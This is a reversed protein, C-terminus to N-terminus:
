WWNWFYDNNSFIQTTEGTFISEFRPAAKKFAKNGKIIQELYSNYGNFSEYRGVSVRGIEIQNNKYVDYIPFNQLLEPIKPLSISTIKSSDFFLNWQYPAGIDYGGEMYIEGISHGTGTTSIQVENNTMSFNVTWDPISINDRPIGLGKSQYNGSNFTYAHSYFQTNLIYNYGFSANAGYGYSWIQHYIDNVEGTQNFFGYISLNKTETMYEAPTMIIQKDVLNDQVFDSYNIEFGSAIPREILLYSYFNTIPNFGYMYAPDQTDMMNSSTFNTILPDGAENSSFYYDRGFFSLQLDQPKGNIPYYKGGDGTYRTSTELTLTNLNELNVNTISYLYSAVGNSGLSAFTITFEQDIAFNEVAHLKVQRSDHTLQEIDILSGDLNSAIVYHSAPINYSLYDDPINLTFILRQLLISWISITKNGLSDTAIFKIEGEGLEFLDPNFDFSIETTLDFEHILEDRFYLQLTDVESFSDTVVPNLTIQEDIIMDPELADLVIEPGSNDVLFTVIYSATNGALDSVQIQLENPGDQLNSTDLNFNYKNEQAYPISQGNVLVSVSSIEDNDTASFMIANDIGQLIEGEELTVETILPMDNDIIITFEELTQNDAIDTVLISLKYDANKSSIVQKKSSFSTLDLILEYPAILDEGVKQDDIFAEVRKIGSEDKADISINVSSGVKIPGMSLNSIGAISVEIVPAVTDPIKQQEEETSCSQLLVVFLISYCLKRIM